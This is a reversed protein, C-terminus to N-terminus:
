QISLIRDKVTGFNNNDDRYKVTSINNYMDYAASNVNDYIYIYLIKIVSSLPLFRGARRHGLHVTTRLIYVNYVCACFCLLLV